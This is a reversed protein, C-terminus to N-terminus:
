DRLPWELPPQDRNGAVLDVLNGITIVLEAAEVPKTLHANYGAALARTRDESRAFATLAVAPINAGLPGMGRVRRILDYGDVDPLGIDSVLVQPRDAALRDLAELATAAVTVQARHAELLRRVVDRTDLDDEVVLIRVGHFSVQGALRAAERSEQARNHVSADADIRIPLEVTFTSGFNEGASWARISGGHLEALHRAISLGLGLGGHRRTTMASAQRFREFLDPLFEPRIGIGTDAVAVSAVDGAVRLTVTVTGGRPTFKIANSILNWVIQQLRAPDAVTRLSEAELRTVIGIGRELALPQLAEVSNRIVRVLDVDEIELSLKGSVIRSVDLLDAILQAQLRTNRAIVELGHDLTVASQREKLIDTWGLIANLPTRLEHSVMAVFDDKVRNAREAEARAARENQLLREREATTARVREETEKIRSIERFVVVVGITHGARDVIPAVSDAIPWEAGSRSLLVKHPGVAAGRGPELVRVGPPPLRERTTGDILHFIEAVPQGVADDTSWGTLKEAEHNLFTVRTGADCAIVADGISNLTVRFWEEQDALRAAAARQQTIDRAIKSAGIITGAANRVPSVTLSVDVLRGAKTQRVTEFHELREGARIRALIRAEEDRREAPILVTVSRGIVEAARYGFLREAAANFSRITGQLDKSVIADDSSEVIAALYAQLDDANMNPSGTGM